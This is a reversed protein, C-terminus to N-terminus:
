KNHAKYWAIGAQWAQEMADMSINWDGEKDYWLDFANWSAIELDKEREIEV